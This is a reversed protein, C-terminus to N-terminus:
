NALDHPADICCHIKTDDGLMMCRSFSLNPIGTDPDNALFVGATIYPAADKKRYHIQPLDSLNGSNLKDPTSVMNMYDASELTMSDFFSNWKPHLNPDKSGIMQAMRSFSGYLNAVVPFKSGKVNKFLIAQDSEKQSRSIVTALEFEPDVEKEVIRMDGCEQLNGVYENLDSTNYSSM